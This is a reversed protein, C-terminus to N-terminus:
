MSAGGKEGGSDREALSTNTQSPNPLQPNLDSSKNEWCFNGDIPEVLIQTKSDWNAQHNLIETKDKEGQSPYGM